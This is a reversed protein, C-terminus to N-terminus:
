RVNDVTGLGDSPNVFTGGCCTSATGQARLRASRRWRAGTDVRRRLRLELATLEVTRSRCSCTSTTRSRPSFSRCRIPRRFGRSLYFGVASDTPVSSGYLARADENRALQEMEDM